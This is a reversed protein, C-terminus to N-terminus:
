SYLVEVTGNFGVCKKSTKRTRQWKFCIIPDPDANIEGKQIRIRTWCCNVCIFFSLFGGGGGEVCLKELFSKNGKANIAAM